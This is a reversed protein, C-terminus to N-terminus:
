RQQCSYAIAGRQPRRPNPYPTEGYRKLDFNNGPWNSMSSQLNRSRHPKLNRLHRIQFTSSMPRVEYHSVNTYFAAMWDKISESVKKRALVQRRLQQRHQFKGKDPALSVSLYVDILTLISEATKVHQHYDKEKDDLHVYFDRWATHLMSAVQSLDVLTVTPIKACNDREYQPQERSIKM